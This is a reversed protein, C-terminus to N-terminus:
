SADTPRKIVSVTLHFGFGDVNVPVVALISCSTKTGDANTQQAAPGYTATVSSDRSVATVPVPKTPGPCSSFDSSWPLSKVYEATATLTSAVQSQNRNALSVKANTGLATILATVGIGLVITAVLVEVLTFGEETQKRRKIM